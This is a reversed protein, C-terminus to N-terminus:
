KPGYQPSGRVTTLPACEFGNQVHIYPEIVSNMRIHCHAGMRAYGGVAVNPAFFNFDGIRNHHSFCVGPFILNCAGIKTQTGIYVGALVLNGPGLQASPEVWARPHIIRPFSIGRHKLREYVHQRKRNEGIAVFVGSERVRLDSMLAKMGGLIPVGCFAEEYNFDDFFGEVADGLASCVDLVIEGLTSTGFVFM